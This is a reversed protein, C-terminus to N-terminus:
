QVIEVTDRQSRIKRSLRRISWEVYPFGVLLFIGIVTGSFAVDFGFAILAFSLTVSSEIFLVLLLATQGPVLFWTSPIHNRKPRHISRQHLRFRLFVSKFLFFVLFVSILFIGVGYATSCVGLAKDIRESNALALVSATISFSFIASAWAPVQWILSDFHRYDQIYSDQISM